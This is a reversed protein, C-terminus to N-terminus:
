ELRPRYASRMGATVRVSIRDIAGAPFRALQQGPQPLATRNTHCMSRHNHGSRITLKAQEHLLRWPDCPRPRHHGVPRAPPDGGVHALQTAGHPQPPGPLPATVPMRHVLRHVRHTAQPMWSPSPVAPHVSPFCCEVGDGTARTTTTGTPWHGHRRCLWWESMVVAPPVLTSDSPPLITRPPRTSTGIPVLTRRTTWSMPPPTGPPPGSL